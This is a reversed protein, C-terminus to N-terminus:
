CLSRASDPPLADVQAISATMDPRIVVAILYPAGDRLQSADFTGATPGSIGSANGPGVDFGWSGDPLTQSVAMGRCAAVLATGVEGRESREVFAFDMESRNEVAICLVRDPDPTPIPVPTIGPQFLGPGGNAPAACWGPMGPFIIGCAALGVGIALTITLTPIRM